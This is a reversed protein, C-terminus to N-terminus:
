IYWPPRLRAQECIHQRYCDQSRPTAYIDLCNWLQQHWHGFLKRWPPDPLQINIGGGCATSLDAKAIELRTQSPILHSKWARALWSMKWSPFWTFSISVFVFARLITWFWANKFLLLNKQLLASTQLYVRKSRTRTKMAMKLNTITTTQLRNQSSSNSLLIILTRVQDTSGGRSQPWCCSSM